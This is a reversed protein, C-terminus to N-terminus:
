EWKGTIAANICRELDGYYITTEGGTCRQSYHAARASNTAAVNIKQLNTLPHQDAICCNAIIGGAKEIIDAYGADKAMAYTGNSTAVLLQVGSNIRKGDLFSAIKALETIL